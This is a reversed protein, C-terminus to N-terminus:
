HGGGVGGRLGEMLVPVTGRVQWGSAQLLSCFWRLPPIFSLGPSSVSRGAELSSCLGQCLPRRFTCDTVEAM